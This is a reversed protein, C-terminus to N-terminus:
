CLKWFASTSKNSPEVSALTPNPAIYREGHFAVASSVAGQSM